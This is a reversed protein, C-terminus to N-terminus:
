INGGATFPNESITNYYFDGDKFDWAYASITLALAAFLTFLRTTKM